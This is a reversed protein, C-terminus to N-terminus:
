KVTLTIRERGIRTYTPNEVRPSSMLLSRKGSEVRKGSLDKVLEENLCKVGGKREESIGEETSMCAKDFIVPRRPSSLKTVELETM